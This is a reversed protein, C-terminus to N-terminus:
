VRYVNTYFYGWKFYKQSISRKVEKRLVGKGYILMNKRVVDIIKYIIIYFKRYCCFLTKTVSRNILNYRLKKFANKIYKIKVSTM